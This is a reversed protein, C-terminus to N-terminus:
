PYGGLYGERLGFGENAAYRNQYVFASPLVELSPGTRQSRGAYALARTPLMGTEM